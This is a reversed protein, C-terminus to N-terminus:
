ENLKKSKDVLSELNLLTKAMKHTTKSSADECVIYLFDKAMKEIEESQPLFCSWREGVDLKHPLPASMLSGEILHFFGREDSQQKRFRKPKSKYYLYTILILSVSLFLNVIKVNTLVLWIEMPEYPLSPLKALVGNIYIGFLVATSVIAAYAAVCVILVNKLQDDM